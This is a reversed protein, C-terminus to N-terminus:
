FRVLKHNAAVLDCADDHQGTPLARNKTGLNMAM